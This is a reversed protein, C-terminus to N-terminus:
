DDTVESIEVCDGNCCFARQYNAKAQRETIFGGGNKKYFVTIQKPEKFYKDLWQQYTFNPDQKM